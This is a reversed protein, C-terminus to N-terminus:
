LEKSGMKLPKASRMTRSHCSTHGPMRLETDVSNKPM